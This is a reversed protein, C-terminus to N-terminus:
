SLSLAGAKCALSRALQKAEDRRDLSIPMTARYIESEIPLPGYVMHESVHKVGKDYDRSLHSLKARVVKQRYSFPDIQHAEQLYNWAEDFRGVAALFLAYQRYTGANEGLGLARQFHKEGDSWEWALALAVVNIRSPARSGALPPYVPRRSYM